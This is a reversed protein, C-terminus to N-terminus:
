AGRADLGTERGSYNRPRHTGPVLTTEVTFCVPALFQLDEIEVM